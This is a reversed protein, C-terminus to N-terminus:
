AFGCILAWRLSARRQAYTTAHAAAFTARQAGEQAAELAATADTHLARSAAQNTGARASTATGTAQIVEKYDAVAEEYM